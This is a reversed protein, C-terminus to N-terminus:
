RTTRRGLVFVVLAFFITGLSAEIIALVQSFGIPTIDGSNGPTFTLVSFLLGELFPSWSVNLLDSLEVPFKFRYEGTSTNLGTLPYVIGFGIITLIASIILNEIGEGFRIIWKSSEARLARFLFVLWKLKPRDELSIRLFDDQNELLTAENRFQRWYQERRLDKEKVYYQRSKEIMGNERFVNQLTRYTWLAKLDRVSRNEFKGPPADERQYSSTEDFETTHDIQVDSLVANHYESGIFNSGVLYAQDFKAGELDANSFDAGLCNAHSFITQVLTSNSFNANQVNAGTFDSKTLDINQWKVEELDANQFNAGDLETSNELRSRVNFVSGEFNGGKFDVNSLITGRLDCQQLSSRGQKMDNVNDLKSGQLVCQDFKFDTLEVDMFVANPFLSGTFDVNKFTCDEFTAEPFEVLLDLNKFEGSIYANGVPEDHDGLNQQLEKQTKEKKTHWYCKDSGPITERYCCHNRIKQRSFSIATVDGSTRELDRGLPNYKSSWQFIEGCRDM